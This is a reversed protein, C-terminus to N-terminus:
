GGHGPWRDHEAGAHLHERRLRPHRRDTRIWRQLAGRRGPRPRRRAGLEGIALDALGDGDVDGASLSAGAQASAATGYVHGDASISSAGSEHTSGAGVDFIFVAGGNTAAADSYPASVAVESNGDGDVDGLLVANFGLGDSAAAGHVLSYADTISGSTSIVDADFFALTGANTASYTHNASGIILEPDGDANLDPTALLSNALAELSADGYLLYVDVDAVAVDDVAGDCDNDLGDYSVEAAGPYAGADSDDCDTDDSVFGSPQSCAGTTSSADGYGDADADAYWTSADQAYDDDATGSCDTDVGDCYELASTNIAADSDDCDVGGYSDHDEGDGDADYDSDGACDGDIGDYWTDAGGPYASAEADDCDDGGYADSTYGDGDADYDDAGDCNSDAGDYWTEAVGPNVSSNLDDCDDGGYDTSGYGDSDADYDDAGDCNADVGDYYVEAADPNVGADDDDCDDGGYSDSDFGDVDADYDSAGDCDQDVGDYWTETASPYITADTDNCDGDLESFGDGDVDDGSLDEDVASDCDNDIGDDAVELTGPNVDEDTDDCDAGGDGAYGDGDADYDDRGDCDGDVGDYWTEENGPYADPNSDDCDDGDYADSQHGDTDADFDDDGECDSDVGDYWDDEAGPYVSADDDDCDEAPGFGDGDNDADVSASLTVVIVPEDPDNSSITITDSFSGFDEPYVTIEVDVDEGPALDVASTGLGFPAGAGLSLEASLDDTGLNAVNISATSQSLQFVTGFDLASPSVEIDPSGILGSDGDDKSPSLCGSMLALAIILKM